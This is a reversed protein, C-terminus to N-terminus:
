NDLLEKCMPIESLLSCVAARFENESLGPQLNSHALDILLIRDAAKMSEGPPQKYLEFAYEPRRSIPFWANELDVTSTISDSLNDALRRVAQAMDLTAPREAHRIEEITMAIGPDEVTTEVLVEINREDVEGLGSLTVNASGALCRPGAIYLKAHLRDVLGLTSNGRENLIGFIEPDSVGAAVERPLWRTVCRLRMDTPVVEILSELADVKIFPAVVSVQEVASEFLDRIRSGQTQTGLVM